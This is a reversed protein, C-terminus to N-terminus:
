NKEVEALFFFGNQSASIKQNKLQNKEELVACLTVPGARTGPGMQHIIYSGVTEWKTFFFSYYYTYILSTTTHILIM